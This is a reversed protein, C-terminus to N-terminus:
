AADASRGAREPYYRASMRAVYRKLNDHREGADRLPTEFLPCLVGATFAFATADVGTPEGGMLFPKDALFDATADISRTGLAVIEQETHRGTGQGHLASRIKRRVMALILPRM